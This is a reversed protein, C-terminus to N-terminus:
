GACSLAKMDNRLRIWDAEIASPVPTLRRRQAVNSLGSFAAVIDAVAKAGHSVTGRVALGYDGSDGANRWLAGAYLRRGRLMKPLNLRDQRYGLLIEPVAGFRSRRYTRLLLEQDQAKTMREDYRNRRFWGARGFWTPHPLPFGAHPRAVIEDHSRGAGMRGVMADGAFVLADCAVLDLGADRVMLEAQRAFRQPFSVDDADMRAIFEGRALAVAQNLRAPLGLRRGDRTLTLRPENLAAVIDPGDDRSGDDILILEWDALTQAQISRVASAVTAANDQMAMIVSVRPSPSM